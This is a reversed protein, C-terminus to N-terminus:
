ISQIVFDLNNKKSAIKFRLIKKKEIIEYTGILIKKIM